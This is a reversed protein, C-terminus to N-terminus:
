RVYQRFADDGTSRRRLRVGGGARQRGARLHRLGDIGATAGGEHAIGSVSQVLSDFGRWPGVQGYASLTVYVIGPRPEAAEKPSFGRGTDMVLAEISPLHAGSVLLVEAGHEALTRGCVPGAIM